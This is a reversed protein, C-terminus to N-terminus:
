GAKPEFIWRPRAEYIPFQKRIDIVSVSSHVLLLQRWEEASLPTLARRTTVRGTPLEAPTRSIINSMTIDEVSLTTKAEIGRPLLFGNKKHLRMELSFDRRLIYEFQRRSPLNGPEHLRKNGKADLYFYKTALLHLYASVLTCRENQLFYTKIVKHIAVLDEQGIQFVGKNVKRAAIAPEDNQNQGTGTGISDPLMKELVASTMGGPVQKM